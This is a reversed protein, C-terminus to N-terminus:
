PGEEQPEEDCAREYHSCHAEACSMGAHCETLHGELCFMPAMPNPCHCQPNGTVGMERATCPPPPYSPM